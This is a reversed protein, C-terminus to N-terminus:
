FFAHYVGAEKNKFLVFPCRIIWASHGVVDTFVLSFHLNLFRVERDRDDKADGNRDEEEDENDDEDQHDPLLLWSFAQLPHLFPLHLPLAAEGVPVDAEDIVLAEDM